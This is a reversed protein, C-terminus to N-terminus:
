GWSPRRDLHGNTITPWSWGVNVTRTDGAENGLDVIYNGLEERIATIRGQDTLDMVDLLRSAPNSTRVAYYTVSSEPNRADNLGAARRLAITAKNAEHGTLEVRNGEAAIVAVVAYTNPSDIPEPANTM